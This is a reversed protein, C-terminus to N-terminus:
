VYRVANKINSVSVHLDKLSACMILNTIHACYWIQFFKGDLLICGRHDRMERILCTMAIKNSSANEVTIFKEELLIGKIFLFKILLFSGKISGRILIM